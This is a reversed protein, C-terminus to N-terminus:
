DRSIFTTLVYYFLMAVSSFLGTAAAIHQGPGYEHIVNSTQYLVTAAAFVVMALSFYFGLTVGFLVSGVIAILAAIGLVALFPGMFSFNKGSYVVTATMVAFITLTVSVASSLVSVDSFYVAYVLLPIFILSQLLITAGMEFYQMSPSSNKNAFYGSLWGLLMFGGIVILWNSTMIPALVLAIGTKFFVVELGVFAIVAGMLNFYTSRLFTAQDIEAPLAGTYTVTNM